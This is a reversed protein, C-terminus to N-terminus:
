FSFLRVTDKARYFWQATFYPEGDISEFFEVIKAIYDAEGEGAQFM